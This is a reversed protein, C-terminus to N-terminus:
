LEVIKTKLLFHDMLELTLHEGSKLAGVGKPTGTMVIDGPMLTFSNSIEVLLDVIPIIMDKSNGQQRLEGDVVLNFKLATLSDVESLPIFGSMPCSGDFSKAREWPQGKNKLKTQVDRLTLDLGLGVGWIANVVEDHTAKTLRKDILVAIELENQCEGLNSPISVPEVVSCLATSPKMFLLPQEPVDNNLEQIHLMYNRGVCVVKGVELNINKGECNQHTYDFM